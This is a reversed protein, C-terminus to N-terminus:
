ILKTHTKARGNLNIIESFLKVEGYRNEVDAFQPYSQPTSLISHSNYPNFSIIYTFNKASQSAFRNSKSRSSSVVIVM